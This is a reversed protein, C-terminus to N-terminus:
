LVKVILATLFGLLTSFGVIAGGQEFAEPLMTEAIMTLMAGAALGEIASLLMYSSAGGNHPFILVGVGAGIGTILCLSGWMLLIKGFSMGSKRMGVASSMAEPLNALFVGAIFPLSIGTISASLIGIILSEPIGDLLIGLWIAMAAGKGVVAKQAEENIEQETVPMSLRQLHKLCRSEWEEARYDDSKLSLNEARQHFLVLASERLEDSQSLATEFDSHLVKLVQTKSKAKATANRPNNGLLAMEGFTEDKSLVAITKEEGTDNSRIIEVEGTLIFYLTSGIDEQRFIIEGADFTERKMHPILAAIDDPPLSQLLRIRSLENILRRAMKRKVLSLHKRTTIFKRLFAGKNNLMQNLLDFLLGGALAGAITIYIIRNGYEAAHHLAESFLEITLAFLLAGAGFAMLASTVKRSPHTLLGLLAGLPLSIASILGWFFAIRILDINM